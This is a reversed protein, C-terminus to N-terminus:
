RIRLCFPLYRVPLIHIGEAEATDSWPVLEESRHDQKLDIMTIGAAEVESFDQRASGDCLSTLILNGSGDARRLLSRRGLCDRGYFLKASPRDLFVFSFPGTIQSIVKCIGQKLDASAAGAERTSKSAGVLQELILHGDNGIIPAKDYSWAEGNWCLISESAPDILPQVEIHDGRLALVTSFFTLFVDDPPGAEPCADGSIRIQCAKSSDPGRKKLLTAVAVDPPVHDSRSLSFFIGCM